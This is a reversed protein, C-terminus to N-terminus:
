YRSLRDGNPHTLFFNYWKLVRKCHTKHVYIRDHYHVLNIVKVPKYKWNSNGKNIDTRTNTISEAQIELNQESEVIQPSLMFLIEDTDIFFFDINDSVFLLGLCMLKEEELTTDSLINAHLM